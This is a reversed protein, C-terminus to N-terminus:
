KNRFIREHDDLIQGIRETTLEDITPENITVHVIYLVVVILGMILLSQLDKNM